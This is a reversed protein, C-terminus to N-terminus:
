TLNSSVLPATVTTLILNNYGLTLIFTQGLISVKVSM